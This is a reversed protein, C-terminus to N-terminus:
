EDSNVHFIEEVDRGSNKTKSVNRCSIDVCPKFGRYSNKLNNHWPFNFGAVDQLNGESTVDHPKTAWNNTAGLKYRPPRPEFGTSAQIKELKKVAIEKM